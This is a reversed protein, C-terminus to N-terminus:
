FPEPNRERLEISFDSFFETADSFYIEAEDFAEYLATPDTDGELIAFVDELDQSTVTSLDGFFNEYEQFFAECFDSLQM